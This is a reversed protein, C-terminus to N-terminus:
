EIAEPDYIEMDLPDDPRELSVRGLVGGRFDTLIREAAKQADIRSGSQVCGLARAATDFL